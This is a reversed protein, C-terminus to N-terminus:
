HLSLKQNLNKFYKIYLFYCMAKVTEFEITLNVKCNNRFIFYFRYFMNDNM